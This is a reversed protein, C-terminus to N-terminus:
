SLDNQNLFFFKIEVLRRQHFLFAASSFLHHQILFSQPQFSRSLSQNWFFFTSSFRRQFSICVSQSLCPPHYYFFSSQVPLCPYFLFNQNLLLPWNSRLCQSILVFLMSKFYSCSQFNFFINTSSFMNLLFSKRQICFLVNSLFLANVLFHFSHHLFFLKVWWSRPQCLSFFCQILSFM